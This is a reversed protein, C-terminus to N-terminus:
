TFPQAKQCAYCRGPFRRRVEPKGSHRCSFSLAMRLEPHWTGSRIELQVNLAGNELRGAPVRNQNAVIQDAAPTQALALASLLFVVAFPWFIRSTTPM